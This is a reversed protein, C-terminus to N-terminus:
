ATCAVPQASAESDIVIWAKKALIQAEAVLPGKDGARVGIGSVLVTVNKGSGSLQLEGPAQRRGDVFQSVWLMISGSWSLTVTARYECYTGYDDTGVAVLRPEVATISAYVARPGGAGAPATDALGVALALAVVISVVQKRM